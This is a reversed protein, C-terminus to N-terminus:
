LFRREMWLQYVPDTFSLKDGFDDLIEKEILANKSRTVTASTGLDYKKISAASSLAKEGSVHAKLFNLQKNSMRDTLNYFLLSLQDMLQEACQEVIEVNCKRKTHTWSLHALQQVYYPHDQMLNAIHVAADNSIEKKTRIFQNTLFKVWEPQSIKDLLMLTGFQYFPMSRSTFFEMLMHRKSGYLCYAVHEHEQWHARLNKQFSESDKFFSINQFEDICIIIKIKKQKAITEALNLIEKPNKAVENWDLGLSFETESMPSFTIKPVFQKLFKGVQSSLETLKGATVRLVEQTLQQYFEQENRVKFIDLNCIKVSKNRIATRESAVKVLSSKGWRRPSILTTNVVNLFNAELQAIETTRNCFGQGKVLKGFVFPNEM